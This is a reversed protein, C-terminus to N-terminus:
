GARSALCAARAAGIAAAEEGVSAPAVKVHKVAAPRVHRTMELAAPELLLDPAEAITGGLVVFEPDLITVFNAMAMGIYRATERLISAAVGDGGRAAEFIQQSTITNLDGGAIQEVSSQDGSKIRRVLRRVIGPESVEAELCGLTRYDNRDVPNLALWGAAGAMGHAGGFPRGDIVIGADIKASLTLAVIHRAGRAAGIWAEALALALAPNVTTVGARTGDDLVVLGTSLPSQGEHTAALAADLTAHISRSLVQGHEDVFM